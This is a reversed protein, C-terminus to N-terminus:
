QARSGGPAPAASPLYPPPLYPPPANPEVQAAQRQPKGANWFHNVAGPHDAGLQAAQRQPKEASWFNEKLGMPVWTNLSPGGM